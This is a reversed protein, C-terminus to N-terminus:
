KRFQRISHFRSFPRCLYVVSCAPDVPSFTKKAEARFTTVEGLSRDIYRKLFLFVLIDVVFISGFIWNVPYSERINRIVETTYVLYDIAIFNYRTSFEAFFFYEAVLNFLLAYTVVFCGAWAIPKFNFLRDPAFIAYLVFPIAFYSFTTCDFFFGVGYIKVLLVLNLDLNPLAKYLLVTRTLLSFALFLLFLLCLSRVRDKIFM